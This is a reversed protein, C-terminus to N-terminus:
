NKSTKPAPVRVSDRYEPANSISPINVAEGLRSISSPLLEDLKAFLQDM